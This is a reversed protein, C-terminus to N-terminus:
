PIVRVSLGNTTNQGRGCGQMPDTRYFVQFYRTQGPAFQTAALLGGVPGDAGGWGPLTSGAAGVGNTARAGLRRVPAGVCRLGDLLISGVGHGIPCPQAPDFPLQQAGVMLVAFSNPTAGRVDLRLTDASTSSRGQVDLTASWRLANDCGGGSSAHADNGCPCVACGPATSTDGLCYAHYPSPKVSVVQVSGTRMLGELDRPAGIFMTEGQLALAASFRGAPTAQLVDPLLKARERPGTSDLDFLYAAGEALSGAGVAHLPAEAGMAVHADTLAVSWGASELDSGDSAMLKTGTSWGQTVDHEFLYAAGTLENDREARTAGAVLRDASLALSTGFAASITADPAVLRAEEKWVRGSATFLRVEGTNMQLGADANPASAAIRGASIAVCTGLEDGLAGGNAHLEDAHVWGGGTRKFVHVSGANVALDDDGPTGVVLTDNELSVSSGFRDLAVGQKATLTTVATFTAGTREFVVVEGSSNGLPDADKAGVAITDGSIAVACGFEDLASGGVQFLRQTENWNTGDFEFVYAAGTAGFAGTARRAGIVLTDGDVALACGFRDGDFGNSAVLRQLVTADVDQPLAHAAGSLALTTVLGRAAVRLPSRSNSPSPLFNM